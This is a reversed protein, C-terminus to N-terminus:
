IALVRALGRHCLQQSGTARSHDWASEEGRGQVNQEIGIPQQGCKRAAGASEGGGAAASELMWSYFDKLDREGGEPWTRSAALEVVTIAM